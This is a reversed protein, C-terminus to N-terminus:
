IRLIRPPSSPFSLGSTTLFPSLPVAPVSVAVSVFSSLPVAAAVRPTWPAPSSSARCCDSPGISASEDACCGHREAAMAPCPCAFIAALVLSALVVNV